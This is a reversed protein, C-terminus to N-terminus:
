TLQQLTISTTTVVIWLCAGLVLPRPGARRLSTLDTSLGV